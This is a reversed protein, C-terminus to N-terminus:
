WDSQGGGSPPIQRDSGRPIEKQEFGKSRLLPRLRTGWKAKPMKRLILHAEQYDCKWSCVRPDPVSYPAVDPYELYNRMMQITQMADDWINELEVPSRYSPLRQFREDLTMHRVLKHTRAQSVIGDAVKTGRMGQAMIYLGLQDSLDVSSQRLQNSTSKHDVIRLKGGLSHDRVLVDTTWEYWIGPSAEVEQTSEWEIIEWDPDLEWKALYGEYMWVLTDYHPTGKFYGDLIGRVVNAIPEVSTPVKGGAQWRYIEGYHHAMAEHWATGLSSASSPDKAQWQTM